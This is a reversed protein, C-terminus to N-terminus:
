ASALVEAAPGSAEVRGDRLVVVQHALERAFSVHHTVLVMSTGEAALARLLALVDATRAPDLASTPEDLLLVEPGMALARAIAVRQQEGGSMEHPYATERHAVGVKDLLARARERAQELPVRQVHVPAEIVNGLATRHAFLHHAQFVFGLRRRIADRASRQEAGDGGRVVVGFGRVEGSDFPELGDICRLLTSKGGGSPGVVAAIRARELTLSVDDLVVRDGIKKGLRDVTLLPAADDGAATPKDSM